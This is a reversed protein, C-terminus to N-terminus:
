GRYTHRESDKGFHRKRKIALDIERPPVTREKTLHHSLVAIKEGGYFYLIRHNVGRVKARLECIGDRLADATPRRLDYGREALLEILAQLKDAVKPEREAFHLLAELAPVSGDDDQFFVVEIEPM